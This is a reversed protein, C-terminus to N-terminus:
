AMRWAQLDGREIQGIAVHVLRLTLLGVAATVGASEPPVLHLHIASQRRKGERLIIEIWVVQPTCM